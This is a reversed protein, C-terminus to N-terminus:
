RIHFFYNTRLFKEPVGCGKHLMQMRVRHVVGEERVGKELWEKTNIGEGVGM